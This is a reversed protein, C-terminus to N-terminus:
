RDPLATPEALPVLDSQPRAAAKTSDPLLLKETLVPNKRWSWPAPKRALSDAENWYLLNKLRAYHISDTQIKQLSDAVRANRISDAVYIERYKKDSVERVSLEMEKLRSDVETYIRNLDQPHRAYYELSERVTVSDTGYRQYIGEIFDASKILSSDSSWTYLYGDVLHIDLLLDTMTKEDIISKPRDSQCGAFLIFSLLIGLFRQM